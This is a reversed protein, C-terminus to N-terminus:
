RNYKDRIKEANLTPLFGGSTKYPCRDPNGVIYKRIQRRSTRFL